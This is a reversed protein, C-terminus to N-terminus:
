SHAQPSEHHATAAARRNGEVRGDKSFRLYPEGSYGAVVVEHGDVTLELFADGGVIEARLGPTDPTVATVTSRFDSPRPPDAAAPAAHVLVAALAVLAVLAP